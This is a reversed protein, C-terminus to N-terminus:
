RIGLDQMARTSLPSQLGLFFDFLIYRYFGIPCEFFVEQMDIKGRGYSSMCMSNICDLSLFSHIFSHIFSHFVSYVLVAEGYGCEGKVYMLYHIVWGEIRGWVCMAIQEADQGNILGNSLLTLGSM